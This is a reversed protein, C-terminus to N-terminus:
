ILMVIIKDKLIAIGKQETLAIEGFKPHKSNM